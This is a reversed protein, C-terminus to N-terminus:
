PAEEEARCLAPPEEQDAGYRPGVAAVPEGCRAEEKQLEVMTEEYQRAVVAQLRERGLRTCWALLPERLQAREESTLSTHDKLRTTLWAHQAPTMGHDPDISWCVLAMRLVTDAVLPARTM